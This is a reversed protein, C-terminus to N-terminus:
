PSRAAGASRPSPVPESVVPGLPDDRRGAYPRALEHQIDARALSRQGPRQDPGARLDDGDFKVFPRASASRRRNPVTLPALLLSPLM